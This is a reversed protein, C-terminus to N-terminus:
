TDLESFMGYVKGDKTFVSMSGPPYDNVMDDASSYGFSAPDLPAVFKNEIFTNYEWSGMDWLDPGAGSSLSALLKADYAVVGAFPIAAFQIKVDPHAKQFEPIWKKTFADQLPPFEHTWVELTRTQQAQIAGAPMAALALLVVCALYAFKVKSMKLEKFGL